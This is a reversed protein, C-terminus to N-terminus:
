CFSGAISNALLVNQSATASRLLIRCVFPIHVACCLASNRHSFGQLISCCLCPKVMTDIAMVMNQVDRLSEPGLKTQMQNLREEM